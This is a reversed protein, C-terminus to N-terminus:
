CAAFRTSLRNEALTFGISVRWWRGRIRRLIKRMRRGARGIPKVLGFAFSCLIVGPGTLLRGATRRKSGTLM